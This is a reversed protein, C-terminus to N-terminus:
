NLPAKKNIFVREAIRTSQQDYFTKSADMALWVSETQDKANTM